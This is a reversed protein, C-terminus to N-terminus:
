RIIVFHTNHEEFWRRAYNYATTLKQIDIDHPNIRVQKGTRVNIYAETIAIMHLPDEFIFNNFNM